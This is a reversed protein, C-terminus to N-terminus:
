IAEIVKVGRSPNSSPLHRIKCREETPNFKSCDKKKVNLICTCNVNFKPAAADLQKKDFTVNYHIPKHRTMPLIESAFQKTEVKFTKFNYKEPVSVDIKVSGFRCGLCVNSEMGIGRQLTTIPYCTLV